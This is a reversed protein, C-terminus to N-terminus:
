EIGQDAFPTSSCCQICVAPRFYKSSASHMNSALSGWGGTTCSDRVMGPGMASGGTYYSGRGSPSGGGPGFAMGTTSGRM